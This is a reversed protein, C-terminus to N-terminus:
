AARDLSYLEIHHVRVKGYGGPVIAVVRGGLTVHATGPAAPDETIGIRGNGVDTSHYGIVIQDEQPDFGEIVPPGDGAPAPVVDQATMPHDTDGGSMDDFDADPDDQFTDFDDDLADAQVGHDPAPGFGDDFNDYDSTDDARSMPMHDDDTEDRSLSQELSSMDFSDLADDNPLADYTPARDLTDESAAMRNMDDEFGDNMATATARDQMADDLGGHGGMMSRIANGLQADDGDIADLHDDGGFADQGDGGLTADPSNDRGVAARADAFDVPAASDEGLAAESAAKKRARSKRGIDIGFIGIGGEDEQDGLGDDDGDARPGNVLRPDNTTTTFYVGISALAFILILELM